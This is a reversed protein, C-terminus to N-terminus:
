YCHDCCNNYIAWVIIHTKQLNKKKKQQEHIDSICQQCYTHRRNVRCNLLYKYRSYDIKNMNYIYIVKFIHKNMKQLHFDIFDMHFSFTHFCFFSYYLGGGFFFVVVVVAVIHLLLYIREFIGPIQTQSPRPPPNNTYYGGYDIVIYTRYEATVSCSFFLLMNYQSIPNKFLLFM